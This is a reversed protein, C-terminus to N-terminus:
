VLLRNHTAQRRGSSVWWFISHTSERARPPTNRHRAWLCLRHLIEVVAPQLRHGLIGIEPDVARAIQKLVPTIERGIGTTDIVELDVSATHLRHPGDRRTTGLIAHRQTGMTPAIHRARHVRMALHKTVDGFGDTALRKDHMKAACGLM